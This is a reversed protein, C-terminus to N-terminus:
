REASPHYIGAFIGSWSAGGDRSIEWLQRVTGGDLPEWTIRDRVVGDPTQREGALVMRGRDDLGGTLHLVTGSGVWFQTWRELAPQWVNLSLGQGGRAGRWHERLGCNGTIRTIENTGLVNGSTDTVTWTGIWFDFQRHEAAACGPDLASQAHALPATFLLLIPLLLLGIYRIMTFEHVPCRAVLARHYAALGGQGRSGASRIPTTALAWSRVM